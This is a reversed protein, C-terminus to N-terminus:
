NHWPAASTFLMTQRLWSIHDTKNIITIDYLFLNTVAHSFLWVNIDCGNINVVYMNVCYVCRLIRERKRQAYNQKATHIIKHSNDLMAAWIEHNSWQSGHYWVIAGYAGYQRSYWIIVDEFPFVKRTVPRKHPSNGACLDTIRLKSTKKIQAEVLLQNSVGQCQRENHCWQLHNISSTIFCHKTFHNRRELVSSKSNKSSFNVM